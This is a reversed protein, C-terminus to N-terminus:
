TLGEFQMADNLLYGDLAKKQMGDNVAASRLARAITLFADSAEVSVADGPAERLQQAASMYQLLASSCGFYRNSSAGGPDVECGRALRVMDGKDQAVFRNYDQVRALAEKLDQDAYLRDIMKRVQGFTAARDVDEGTVLAYFSVAVPDDAAADPSAESVPEASSMPAHCPWSYGVAVRFQDIAEHADPLSLADPLPDLPSGFYISRPARPKGTSRM